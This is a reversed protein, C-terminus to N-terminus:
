PVLTVTWSLGSYDTATANQLTFVIYTDNATNITTNAILAIAVGGQLFDYSAQASLSNQNDWWLIGWRGQAAALGGSSFVGVWSAQSATTNFGIRVTCTGANAGAGGTFPVGAATESLMRWEIRVQSNLGMTGAPIKVSGLTNVGTGNNQNIVFGNSRWVLPGPNGNVM